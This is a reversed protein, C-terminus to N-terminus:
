RVRRVLGRVLLDGGLPEVQEVDIAAADALKAIGAGEVPGPATRGGILTPAVFAWVEDILAADALGGIIGPGGEVLVNTFRRRGLEALLAALRAARDGKESRWVECGAARLSAVRDPPADPGTAVLVPVDAATKVLRSGLPLRAAGDLVVRVAQRPGTPRATLLPDDALATGIGCLIADVRGRLAHVAARSAESSIWRSERAPTAVRGDLSMAWKAIMWPRGREVLMRFPAILRATERPCVGTTIDIGARRLAAIGGGNVAPFPDAAGIVVRAIGAAIIADTCPPTKGHHCCPELTVALTGGRAAAGCAALAVIEAHPGGFAGHWGEGLMRGAAPGADATAIVAGVLPNPEVRGEGRRALEIARRMLREDSTEPPSPEQM